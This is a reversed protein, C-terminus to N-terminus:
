SEAWVPSDWWYERLNAGPWHFIRPIPVDHSNDLSGFWASQLFIITLCLSESIMEISMMELEDDPALCSLSSTRVVGTPIMFYKYYRPVVKDYLLFEFKAVTSQPLIWYNFYIIILPFCGDPFDKCNLSSISVCVLDVDPSKVTVQHNGQGTLLSNEALNIGPPWQGTLPM